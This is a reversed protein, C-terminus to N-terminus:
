ELYGVYPLNRFKEDYDLGYGIVFKDPIDFAVYEPNLDIVRREKKNLMTCIKVNKPNKSELYKKVYALTRGTDVIDEVILVNKDTIDESIDLTFNIKGTSETGEYSSVKMFDIITDSEIRKALEVAFFTAGKLICVIVIEENNYDKQIQEALERTRSAIEQETILVKIDM